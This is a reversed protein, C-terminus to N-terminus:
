YSKGQCLLLTLKPQRWRLISTGWVRDIKKSKILPEIPPKIQDENCKPVSSVCEALYIINKKTNRFSKIIITWFQLRPDEVWGSRM